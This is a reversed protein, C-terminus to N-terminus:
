RVGCPDVAVHGSTAVLDVRLEFEDAAPLHATIWGEDSAEICAAGTITLHETYRYRITVTAPRDSRVVLSDTRQEVLEAPLDVIPQYDVVEYLRWNENRWVLRLWTIDLMSEHRNILQEEARGGEDLVVDPLAIWRVANDLLWEHYDAVTLGGDYLEENRDLDVQREWGRAFPVESAVFFSEWHNETFPIELRGVPRGDHNRTLVQDILPQHFSGDISEDGAWDLAATIGPQVSWGIGAVLLLTFPTILARCVSRAATVGLPVVAIQALRVFNGGLPNPVLFVVVSAVFALAAAIRIVPLRVVVAVLMFAVVSAVFHDGRFPFRGPARFLVTMVAIPATAGVTIVIGQLARTRDPECSRRRLHDLAAATAAIALFAAAVPSALPTLVSAVVAVRISGRHWAWLAGLGLAIGFAFPARGVVVNVGVVVAFVHNALTTSPTALLAGTLRSFWYTGAISGIATVGFPGILATLPPSLISYSPTPHGGYWYNNWTSAGSREWLLARLFHAPYDAGRLGAAAIVLVLLTITLCPSWVGAHSRWQTAIRVFSRPPRADHRRRRVRSRPQSRREHHLWIRFQSCWGSERRGDTVTM